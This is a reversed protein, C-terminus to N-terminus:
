VNGISDNGHNSNYTIISKRIIGTITITNTHATHTFLICLNYIITNSNYEATSFVKLWLTMKMLDLIIECM